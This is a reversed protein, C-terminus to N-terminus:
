DLNEKLGPLDQIKRWNEMGESWVFTGDKLKGLEWNKRLSQFSFPGLQQQKEDLYFWDRFRYGSQSATISPEEEVFEEVEFEESKEQESVEVPPLLFLLLLGFVGLLMGILFWAFPDRGRSAAFYSNSTGMLIWLIVTLLIEM